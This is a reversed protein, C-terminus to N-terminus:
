EDEPPTLAAQLDAILRRATHDRVTPYFINFLREEDVVLRVVEVVMDLGWIHGNDFDYEAVNDLADQLDSM